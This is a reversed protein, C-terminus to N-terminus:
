ANAIFHRKGEWFESEKWFVFLVVNIESFWLKECCYGMVCCYITLIAICFIKERIKGRRHQVEWFVDGRRFVDQHWHFFFFATKNNQKKWSECWVLFIDALQALKLWGNNNSTQNVPMGGSSLVAKQEVGGWFLGSLRVIDISITAFFLFFIASDFRNQQQEQQQKKYTKVPVPRCWIHKYLIDDAWSFDFFGGGFFLCLFFFVSSM